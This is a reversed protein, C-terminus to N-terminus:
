EGDGKEQAPEALVKHILDSLESAAFPKQLFHIEETAVSAALIPDDEAYGSIFIVKTGPRLLGQEMAVQTGWSDPLFLDMVIVDVPVDPNSTIRLADGATGVSLVHFGNAQLGLGLVERLHLDDDVLLVSPTSRSSPDTMCPVMSGAVGRRWGGVAHM